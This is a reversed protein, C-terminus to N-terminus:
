ATRRDSAALARHVADLVRARVADLTGELSAGAAKAHGGGAATLSQAVAAVDVRGRSRLSVKVREPGRQVLLVGVEVGCVYVLGDVVGEMDGAVIGLEDALATSIVGVAVEGDFEAASFVRGMLRVGAPRREMLIRTAISAHDIGTGLLAAALHHTAPTTNSYRFGGTDFIAGVYLLEALARDLPVSWARAVDWVMECTSTANKDIWAHTYGDPRTSAHHDVIGRVPAAAFADAVRPTLRHRDGDLVVVADWGAGVRDDALMADAGPMWAYRYSPEGAVEARIGRTALVRQLALCAGISDGDPEVPGTLLVRSVNSLADLLADRAATM